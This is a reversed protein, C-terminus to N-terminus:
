SIARVNLSWSMTIQAEGGTKEYTANITYVGPIEPANYTLYAEDDETPHRKMYLDTFDTDVGGIKVIAPSGSVSIASATVRGDSLSDLDANASYSSFSANSSDGTDIDYVSFTVGNDNVEDGPSVTGGVHLDAM